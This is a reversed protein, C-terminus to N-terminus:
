GPWHQADDFQGPTSVQIDDVIDESLSALQGLSYCAWQYGVTLNDPRLPV